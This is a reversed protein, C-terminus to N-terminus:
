SGASQIERRLDEYGSLILGATLSARRRGEPNTLYEDLEYFFAAMHHLAGEPRLEERLSPYQAGIVVRAEAEDGRRIADTVLRALELARHEDM